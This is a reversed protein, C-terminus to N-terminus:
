RSAVMLLAFASAAALLLTVLRATEHWGAHAAREMAAILRAPSRSTALDPPRELTMYDLMSSRPSARSRNQFSSGFATLSPM